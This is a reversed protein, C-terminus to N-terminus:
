SGVSLRCSLQWSLCAVRSNSTFAMLTYRNVYLTTANMTITWSTSFLHFLFSPVNITAIRIVWYLITSTVHFLSLILWGFLGFWTNPEHATISPMTSMASPPSSSFSLAHAVTEAVDGAMQAASSPDSAM